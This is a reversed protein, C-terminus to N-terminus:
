KSDKDRSRKGLFGSIRHWYLRVTASVGIVVAIVAQVIISGAGPDLYQAEAVSPALALAALAAVALARPARPPNTLV